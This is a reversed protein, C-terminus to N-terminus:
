EVKSAKRKLEQYEEFESKTIQVKPERSKRIFACYSCRVLCLTGFFTYNPCPM